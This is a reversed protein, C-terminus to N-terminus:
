GPTLEALRAEVVRAVLDHDPVWGFPVSFLHSTVSGGPIAGLRDRFRDMVAVSFPNISVHRSAASCGIVYGAENRLMPQNWAIVPELGAVRAHIAAFVASVTSAADPDQQALWEDHTDFRRSSPSGRHYMVLANAHTRSFGHGEQLLAMQEPYRADGLETLLGLWHAAPLGHQREIAPFHRTRDGPDTAM